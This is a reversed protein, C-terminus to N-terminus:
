KVPKPKNEKAVHAVIIKYLKPTIKDVMSQTLLYSGFRLLTIADMEKQFVAVKEKDFKLGQVRLQKSLRDAMAGFNIEITKNNDM